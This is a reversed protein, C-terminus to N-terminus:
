LKKIRDINYTTKNDGNQDIFNMYANSTYLNHQNLRKIFDYQQRFKRAAKGELTPIRESINVVVGSKPLNSMATWKILDGVKFQYCRIVYQEHIEFDIDLELELYATNNEIRVGPTDHNVAVFWRTRFEIDNHVMQFTQMHIGDPSIYKKLKEEIISRNKGRGVALRNMEIFSGTDCVLFM